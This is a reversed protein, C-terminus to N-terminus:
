LIRGDNRTQYLRRVVTRMFSRSTLISSVNRAKEKSVGCALALLEMKEASDTISSIDSADRNPSASVGDCPMGPYSAAPKIVQTERFEKQLTSPTDGDRLVESAIREIMAKREGETLTSPRHAMLELLKKSNPHTDYYLRFKLADWAELYTKATRDTLGAQMKCFAEWTMKKIGADAKLPTGRIHYNLEKHLYELEAALVMINTIRLKSSVGHLQICLSAVLPPKM